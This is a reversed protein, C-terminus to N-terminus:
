EKAKSDTYSVSACGKEALKLLVADKGRSKGSMSVFRADIEKGRPLMEIVTNIPPAPYGAWIPGMLIIKNYDNLDVKLTEIPVSKQRMANMCGWTYAKFTGIPKVTHVEQLDAQIEKAFQKAKERTNGSLSYFLVVTKM